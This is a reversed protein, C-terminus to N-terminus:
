TRELKRCDLECRGLREGDEGAGQVAAAGIGVDTTPILDVLVKMTIAVIVTEPITNAANTIVSTTMDDIKGSAAIMHLTTRGIEGLTVGKEIM